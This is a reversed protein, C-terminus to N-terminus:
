RCIWSRTWAPTEMFPTLKRRSNELANRLKALDDIDNVDVM